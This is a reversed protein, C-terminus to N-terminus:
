MNEFTEVTQKEEEERLEKLVHSYHKDEVIKELAILIKWEDGYDYTYMIEGSEELYSDVKIGTPKGVVKNMRELRAEDFKVFQPPINNM